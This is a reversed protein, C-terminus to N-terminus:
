RQGEWWKRWAILAKGRDAPSAGADPGFDQDTLAKLSTRAAQAVMSEDDATLKILADAVERLRDKGKAGAAVAAARRLERNPDKMYEILTNPTWRTLRQVLAERVKEQGDGSLKMAAYALADTYESGRPADRYKAILTDREGPAASVLAEGLKTDVAADKAPTDTRPRKTASDGKLSASSPSAAKKLLDDLNKDRVLRSTGPDSVKGRLRDTLDAALNARSLFLLAFATANDTSGSHFGDSRWSGDRQQTRVLIHSGWDFWDVNGITKLGYVMGVRELSWMFYLNNSLDNPLFENASKGRMDGAAKIFDGVYKLGDVVRRDKDLAEPNELRPERDAGEKLNKAGFGIALGMLGACTMAPSSGASVMYAWGGDAGQCDRYHKDLHALAKSVDVGHRRGCWLGVTAFQTNSHDGSGGNFGTGGGVAQPVLKELAPHLRPKGDNRDETPEETTEKPPEKKPEKKSKPGDDLDERPKPKEKGTGTRAGDGSTLKAGALLDLRLQRERVPDLALGQCQYSWSGDQVQGTLLKLTLFQIFPRDAKAGLRDFLMILLSIEYTSSTSLCAERCAKIINSVAEDSAPVGSELMALGALAAPGTGNGNIPGMLAVGPVAGGPGLGGPGPGGPRYVARLYAQGGKIAAKIRENDPEARVGGAVLSLLACAAAIRTAMPGDKM